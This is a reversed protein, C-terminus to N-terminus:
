WSLWGGDVVVTHGTLYNSADSALYVAMGKLEEVDGIKGIPTRCEIEAVFQRTMGNELDMLLGGGINTTFFGPAIGSVNIRHPALTPALRIRAGQGRLYTRSAALLPRESAIESHVGDFYLCWVWLIRSM